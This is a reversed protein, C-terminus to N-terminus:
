LYWKYTIFNKILFYEEFWNILIILLITGVTLFIVADKKGDCSNETKKKLKKSVPKESSIKEESDKCKKNTENLQKQDCSKEIKPEAIANSNCTM